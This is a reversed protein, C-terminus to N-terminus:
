KPRLKNLREHLEEVNHIKVRVNLATANPEAQLEILKKYQKTSVLVLTYDPDIYDKNIKTVIQLPTKNEFLTHWAEHQKQPVFSINRKENTGGISTPKRHHRTTKDTEM